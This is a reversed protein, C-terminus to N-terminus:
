LFNASPNSNFTACLLSNLIATPRGKVLPPESAGLTLLELFKSEPMTYGTLHTHVASLHSHDPGASREGRYTYFAKLQQRSSSRDDEIQRSVSPLNIGGNFLCIFM